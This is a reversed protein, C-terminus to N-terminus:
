MAVDSASCYWHCHIPCYDSIVLWGISCVAVLLVTNHACQCFVNSSVWYMGPSAFLALDEQPEKKEALVKLVPLPLHRFGLKCLQALAAVCTGLAGVGDDPLPEEDATYSLSSTMMMVCRCCVTCTACLMGFVIWVDLSPVCFLERQVYM